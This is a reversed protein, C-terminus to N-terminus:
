ANDAEEEEGAYKAIDKAADQVLRWVAAEPLGYQRNKAAVELLGHIKVTRGRILQITQDINM